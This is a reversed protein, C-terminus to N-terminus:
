HRRATHRPARASSSVAMPADALRKGRRIRDYAGLVRRMEAPDGGRDPHNELALERFRAKVTEDNASPPIGLVRYPDSEDLCRMWRELRQKVRDLEPSGPASAGPREIRATGARVLEDGYNSAVWRGCYACHFYRVPSGAPSECSMRTGCLECCLTTTDNM